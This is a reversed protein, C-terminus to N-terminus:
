EEIEVPIAVAITKSGAGRVEYNWCADGNPYFNVYVTRKKTAMFLDSELKVGDFGYNGSDDWGLLKGSVVGWNKQRGTYADFRHLDTVPRGDRTVVPEGALAKQLDFPKM